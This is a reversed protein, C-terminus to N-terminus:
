AAGRSTTGLGIKKALTSRHQAYNPAVMPYDPGLQWRERYQDPTMNYASMLHRKLMKLKKGDELCVIYDHHVSRGVPVAPKQREAVPAEQPKGLSGLAQHVTRILEPITQPQAANQAVYAAVIDASLRLLTGDGGQEAENEIAM